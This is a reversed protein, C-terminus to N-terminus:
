QISTLVRSQSACSKFICPLSSDLCRQSWRRDVRACLINFHILPLPWAPATLSVWSAELARPQSFVLQAINPSCERFRFSSFWDKQSTKLHSALLSKKKERSWQKPGQTSSHRPQAEVPFTPQPPQGLSALGARGPVQTPVSSPNWSHIKSHHRFLLGM